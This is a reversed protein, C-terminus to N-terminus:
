NINLSENGIYFGSNSGNVIHVGIRYNGKSLKKLDIMGKFGSYDYNITNGFYNTVDERVTKEPILEYHVNDNTIILKIESNTADFDKLAAWGSIMIYKKLKHIKEFNAVIEHNNHKPLHTITKLEYTSILNLPPIEEFLEVHYNGTQDKIALGIKYIDKELTNTFITVEFGSNELNEASFASTIDNRKILKVKQLYTKKEGLLVINITDLTNNKHEKLFAWGNIKLNNKTEFVQEFNKSIIDTDFKLNKVEKFQFSKNIVNQLSDKKTSNLEKSGTHITNSKFILYYGDLIVYDLEKSYILPYFTEIHDKTTVILHNKDIEGNAIDENLNLLFDKNLSNTERAVYGMTIPLKNKLAIFCLDQYDSNSKLNNNYPPYTILKDFNSTIDLWAKENFKSLTYTGKELNRFSLIPTIDIFQIITIGTLVILKILYNLKIKSLQILSVVVVLYYFLWVFRGSARFVGGLKNILEPISFSFIISDNISVKNTISFLLSFLTLVFILSNKFNFKLYFKTKVFGVFLSIVAIFILVMFGIGLYSYGEYQLDSVLKLKPLILSFGHSNYLSNLNLSYLGYSNEVEMEVKNDFSVLGIIFWLIIVSILSVVPYLLAKKLSLSKDFFYNKLPLIFNFGVIMLFLYPNILSSIVLLLFQKKNINDVNEPTPKQLYYYISALLLWHACLAPHMARYILMPNISVLIVALLIYLANVHYTKLIKITFVGMLFHNLLLWFGFYQFEEPLLFSLSKFLLALLPISDTYGVNSGAPYNYNEIHGLPFHWPENQFNAWGLYHTGWDHNASLLWNINSPNLIHLGYIYHFFAILVIFSIGYIYKEKM